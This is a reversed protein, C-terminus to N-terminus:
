CITLTLSCMFVLNYGCTFLWPLIIVSFLFIFSNIRL